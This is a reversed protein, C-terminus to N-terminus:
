TAGELTVRGSIRRQRLLILADTLVPLTVVLLWDITPTAVEQRYSVVTRSAIYDQVVAVFLAFPSFLRVTSGISEAASM